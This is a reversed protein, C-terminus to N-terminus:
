VVFDNDSLAPTLLKKVGPAAAGYVRTDDQSQAFFTGNVELLVEGGKIVPRSLLAIDLGMKQYLLQTGYEALEKNV